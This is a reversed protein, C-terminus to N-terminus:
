TRSGCRRRRVHEREGASHLDSVSGARRRPRGGPGMEHELSRPASATTRRMGTSEPAGPWYQAREVLIPQTSTCAHRSRARQGAGRRGAAINLTVREDRGCRRADEHGRQGTDPLFTVTATADAAALIPWCCSRRSSRARRAKRSSGSTAPANVGASEHGANFSRRARFVDRARRRRTRSRSSRHRVVQDVLEAFRRRRVITKRSTPALTFTKVVPASAKWCSRASRASNADRGSQGAARLDPLLGALRGRLVVNMAPGDTAKETHAGYNSTTGGCRGNSSWRCRREDVHGDGLGRHERARRHRGRRDDHTVDGRLALNQTITTGDGELLHDHVPAQASNPNALLIDTDFFAGTAGEAM